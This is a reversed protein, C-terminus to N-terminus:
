GLRARDLAELQLGVVALRLHLISSAPRGGPEPYSFSDGLSGLTATGLDTTDDYIAPLDNNRRSVVTWRWVVEAVTASDRVATADPAFACFLTMGIVAVTRARAIVSLCIRNHSCVPTSHRAGSSVHCACNTECASLKKGRCSNTMDNM